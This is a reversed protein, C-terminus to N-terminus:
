TNTTVCSARFNAISVPGSPAQYKPANEEFTKVRRPEKPEERKIEITPGDRRPGRNDRRDRDGGRNDRRDM